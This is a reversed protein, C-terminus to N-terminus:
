QAEWSAWHSFFGGALAPPEPEIESRPLGGPSPFSWRSWYEQRPFGQVSSGPPSYDMPNGLPPWSQTVPCLCKQKGGTREHPRHRARKGWRRQGIEEQLGARSIENSHSQSCTNSDGLGVEGDRGAKLQGPLPWSAMSRQEEMYIEMYMKTVTWEM